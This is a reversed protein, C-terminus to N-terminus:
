SVATAYGSGLLICFPVAVVARTFIDTGTASRLDGAELGHHGSRLLSATWYCRPTKGIWACLILLIHNPLM